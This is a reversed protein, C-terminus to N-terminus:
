FEGPYNTLSLVFVVNVLGAIILPLLANRVPLPKSPSKGTEDMNAKYVFAFFFESVFLAYLPALLAVAMGSGIQEPSDLNRLMQILGILTCIVGGAIVYRSGFAAIEAYRANPAAPTCFLTLLSDPIFKLFEIGHTGLLLLFCIGITILMSPIHIFASGGGGAAIGFGLLFIIGLTAITRCVSFRRGNSNDM